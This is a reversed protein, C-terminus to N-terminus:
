DSPSLAPRQEMEVQRINKEFLAVEVYRCLESAPWADRRARHFFHCDRQQVWVIRSEVDGETGGRM